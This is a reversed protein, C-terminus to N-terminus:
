EVEFVLQGERLIFTGTIEKEIELRDLLPKPITTKAQQKKTIWVSVAFRSANEKYRPM